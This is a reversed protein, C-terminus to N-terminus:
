PLCTSEKFHDWDTSTLKWWPAHPPCQHQEIFNLTVPFHDNGFPNRIVSWELYPLLVASGITLDISHSNHYVNYYTPENKNFLCMGSTVLFNEM